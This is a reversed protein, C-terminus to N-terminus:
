RPALFPLLADWLAPRAGPEHHGPSAVKDHASRSSGLSPAPQVSPKRKRSMAAATRCAATDEIVHPALWPPASPAANELDALATKPDDLYRMVVSGRAWLLISRDAQDEIWNGLGLDVSRVAVRPQGHLLGSAAYALWAEPLWAGGAQGVWGKTWAYVAQWDKASLADRVKARYEDAPDSRALVDVADCGCIRLLAPASAAFPVGTAAPVPLTRRYSAPNV